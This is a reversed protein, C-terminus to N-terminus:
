RWRPSGLERTHRRAVRAVGSRWSRLSTTLSHPRSLELLALNQTAHAVVVVAISLGSLYFLSAYLLGSPLKSMAAVAGFTLHNVAYTVGCLVITLWAAFGLDDTLLRFLLQRLVLEEGVVLALVSLIDRVGIRAFASYSSHITVRTVLQKTQVYLVAVGVLYELAICALGALPALLLLPLFAPWAVALIQHPHALAAVAVLIAYGLVFGALSASLSGAQGLRRPGRILVTLNACFGTPYVSAM